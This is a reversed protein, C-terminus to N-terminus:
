HGSSTSRRQTHELKAAARADRDFVGGAFGAITQITQIEHKSGRHEERHGRHNFKIQIVLSSVSFDSLGILSLFIRRARFRRTVIQLSCWSRAMPRFCRFVMSRTTILSEKWGAAMSM